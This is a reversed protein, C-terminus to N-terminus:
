DDCRAQASPTRGAAVIENRVELLAKLCVRRRCSVRGARADAKMAAESLSVSHM